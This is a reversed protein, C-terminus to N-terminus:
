FGHQRGLDKTTPRRDTSRCFGRHNKVGVEALSDKRGSFVCTVQGTCTVSVLIGRLLLVVGSFSGAFGGGAPPRDEGGPCPWQRTAPFGTGPHAALDHNEGSDTAPSLLQNAGSIPQALKIQTPGRAGGWDRIRGGYFCRHLDPEGPGHPVTRPPLLQCPVRSRHGPLRYCRVNMTTPSFGGATSAFVQWSPCRDPSRRTPPRKPGTPPAALPLGPRPPRRVVHHQANAISVLRAAAAGGGSRGPVPTPRGLGVLRAASASSATVPFAPWNEAPSSRNVLVQPGVLKTM